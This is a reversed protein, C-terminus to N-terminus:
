QKGLAELLFDLSVITVPSGTDVLADVMTGEIEVGVTLTPGIYSKGQSKLVRMTTIVRGMAEESKGKQKTICTKSKGTAVSTHALTNELELATLSILAHM